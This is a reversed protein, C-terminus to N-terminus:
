MSRAVYFLMGIAFVNLFTYLSLMNNTARAKEETYRMMEKYLDASGGERNLIDRQANLQAEYSSIQSNLTRIASNNGSADQNRRSAIASVILTLDNLKRNLVKSKELYNNIDSQVPTAAALATFLRDLAYTYRIYYHCYEENISTMFATESSRFAALGSADLSTLSPQAPMTSATLITTVAAPTLNGASDRAAGAYPAVTLIGPRTDLIQSDTGSFTGTCFPM